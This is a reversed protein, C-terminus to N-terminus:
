GHRRRELPIEGKMVSREYEIADLPEYGESIHIDLLSFLSKKGYHYALGFSAFSLSFLILFLEVINLCVTM